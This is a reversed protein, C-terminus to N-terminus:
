LKRNSLEFTECGGPPLAGAKRSSVPPDNETEPERGDDTENLTSPRDFVSGIHKQFQAM